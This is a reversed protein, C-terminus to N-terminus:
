LLKVFFMTPCMWTSIGSVMNQLRFSELQNDASIVTTEHLEWFELLIHHLYRVKQIYKPVYVYVAITSSVTACFLKLSRWAVLGGNLQFVYSGTSKRSAIDGTLSWESYASLRPFNGNQMMSGSTDPGIFIGSEQAGQMYHLMHKAAVWHAIKLSEVLRILIGESFTFGLQTHSSVYKLSGILSM